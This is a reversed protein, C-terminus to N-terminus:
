FLHRQLIEFHSLFYILFAFTTSFPTLLFKPHNPMLHRRGNYIARRAVNERISKIQNHVFSKKYLM